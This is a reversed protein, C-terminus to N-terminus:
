GPADRGRSTRPSPRSVVPFGAPAGFRRGDAIRSRRRSRPGVPAHEHCRRGRARGAADRRYRGSPMRSTFCSTAVKDEAIPGCRPWLGGIRDGLPALGMDKLTRDDLGRLEEVAAASRELRHLRGSRRECGHLRTAGLRGRAFTRDRRADPAGAARSRRERKRGIEASAHSGLQEPTLPRHEFRLFYFSM